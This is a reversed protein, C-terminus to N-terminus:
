GCDTHWFCNDDSRKRKRGTALGPGALIAVSPKTGVKSEAISFAPKGQPDRLSKANELASMGTDKRKRESFPPYPM